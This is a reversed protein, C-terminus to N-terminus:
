SGNSADVVKSNSVPLSIALLCLCVYYMRIRIRTSGSQPFNHEVIVANVACSGRDRSQQRDGAVERIAKLEM